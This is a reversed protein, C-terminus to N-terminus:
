SGCTHTTQSVAFQVSAPDRHPISVVVIPSTVVELLGCGSGPSTWLVNASVVGTTETVSTVAVQYGGTPRDGMWAVLLSSTSFDVAPLAPPESDNAWIQAWTAAWTSSDEVVRSGASQFPGADTPGFSTSAVLSVPLWVAPTMLTPSAPGTCAALGGAMVLSVVAAPLTGSAREPM